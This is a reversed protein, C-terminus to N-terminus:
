NKRYSEDEIFKDVNFLMIELLDLCSKKLEIIDNETQDNYRLTRGFNEFSYKGHALDNRWTVINKFNIRAFERELMQHKTAEIGYGDLLIDINRPDLNGQFEKSNEEIQKRVDIEITQIKELLKISTELVINKNFKSHHMVWYKQFHLSVECFKLQLESVYTLIFKDMNSVTSEILNYLLLVTISKFINNIEFDFSHINLKNLINSVTNEVSEHNEIKLDEINIQNITESSILKVPNINEIKDILKFFLEIEEVRSNYNDLVDQQFGINASTM